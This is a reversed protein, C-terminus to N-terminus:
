GGLWHVVLGGAVASFLALLFVKWSHWLAKRGKEREELRAVREKIDSVTTRLDAIEPPPPFAGPLTM